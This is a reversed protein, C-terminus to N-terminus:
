GQCVVSAHAQQQSVGEGQVAAEIPKLWLVQGGGAM